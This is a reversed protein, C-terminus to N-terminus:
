SRYCDMELRSRSGSYSRRTNAGHPFSKHELWRKSTGGKKAEKDAKEMAQLIAKGEDFGEPINKLGYSANFNTRTDWGDKVTKYRPM